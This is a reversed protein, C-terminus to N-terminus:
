VPHVQDSVALCVFVAPVPLTIPSSPHSKMPLLRDCEIVINGDSFSMWVDLFFCVDLCVGSMWFMVIRGGERMMDM